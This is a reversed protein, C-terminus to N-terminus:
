VFSEGRGRLGESLDFLRLLAHMADCGDEYNLVANVNVITMNSFPCDALINRKLFLFFLCQWFPRWAEWCRLSFLFDRAQWRLCATRGTHLYKPRLHWKPLRSLTSWMGAENRSGEMAGGGWGGWWGGMVRRQSKRPDMLARQDMIFRENVWLIQLDESGFTILLFWVRIRCGGGLLAIPKRSPIM